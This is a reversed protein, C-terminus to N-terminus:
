GRNLARCNFFLQILLVLPQTKKNQPNGDVFREGGPSPGSRTGDKWLGPSSKQPLPWLPQPVLLDQQRLLQGAEVQMTPGHPQRPLPSHSLGSSEDAKM